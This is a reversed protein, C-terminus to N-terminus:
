TVYTCPNAEPSEVRDWQDINRNKQWYWIPKIVTAKCYLRLDSLRIGDAENKKRL